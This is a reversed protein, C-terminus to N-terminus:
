RLGLGSHVHLILMECFVTEVSFFKGSVLPQTSRGCGFWVSDNGCDASWKMLVAKSVTLETDAASNLFCLLM